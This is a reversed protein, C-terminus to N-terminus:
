SAFAEVMAILERSDIPKSICANMGAELCRDLDDQMSHATLAIIPVQSKGPEGIARIAAAAEFGDMTPLHLDMLVVDFDKERVLEVAAAGDDAVEVLHGCKGLIRSVLKQNAVTDEVLLLRLPRRSVDAAHEASDRDSDTSM